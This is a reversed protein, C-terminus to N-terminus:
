ENKFISLFPHIWNEGYISKVLEIHERPCDVELKRLYEIFASMTNQSFVRCNGLKNKLPTQSLYEACGNDLFMAECYPLLISIFEIDYYMGINPPRIKGSAGERAIAAHLSASLSIHDVKELCESRLFSLSLKLVQDCDLGNQNAVETLDWFVQALYPVGWFDDETPRRVGSSIENTREAYELFGQIIAEGASRIEEKYWDNFTKGTEGKRRNFIQKMGQHIKKRQAKEADIWEDAWQSRATISIRDMWVNPNKNLGDFRNENRRSFGQHVKFQEIIQHRKIYDFDKFSIGCGLHHYLEKVTQYYPTVVSERTHNESYPCCILHLKILRDLVSYLEVWTKLERGIKMKPQLAKVMNSIAMQDLYIIKKKPEPLFQTEAEEGRSPHPYMCSKCRRSISFPGISLIGFNREGCKPCVSYPPSIFDKWSFTPKEYNSMKDEKLFETFIKAKKIHKRQFVIQM